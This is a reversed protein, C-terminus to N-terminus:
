NSLTYSIKSIKIQKTLVANCLFSLVENEHFISVSLFASGVCSIFDPLGHIFACGKTMSNVEWILKNRLKRNIQHVVVCMLLLNMYNLTLISLKNIRSKIDITSKQLYVFTSCTDSWWWAPPDTCQERERDAFVALAACRMLLLGNVTLSLCENHIRRSTRYWTHM